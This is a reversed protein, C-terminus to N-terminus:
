KSTKTSKATSELKKGGKELGKTLHGDDDKKKQLGSPLQGKEDTHKQLGSPLEGVQRGSNEKSTKKEASKGKTKGEQKALAPYATVGLAFTVVVAPIIKSIKMRDGKSNKKRRRTLQACRATIM